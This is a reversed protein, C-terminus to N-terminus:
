RWRCAVARFGRHLRRRYFTSSFAKWAEQSELKGSRMSSYNAQSLDGTITSYDINLGASIGYLSTRVCEGYANTPHTPDYTHFKSGQPLEDFAGPEFDNLTARASPQRQEM